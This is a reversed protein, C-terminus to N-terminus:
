RWREGLLTVQKQWYRERDHSESLMKRLASLQRQAHVFALLLIAFALEVVWFLWESVVACIM